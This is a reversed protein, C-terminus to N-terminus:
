STDLVIEERAPDRRLRQWPLCLGWLAVAAVLLWGSVIARSKGVNKCLPQRNHEVETARRSPMKIIGHTVPTDTLQRWAGACDVRVAAKANAVGLFESAPGLEVSFPRMFYVLSAFFFVSAIVFVLRPKGV